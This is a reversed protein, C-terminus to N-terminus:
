LVIVRYLSVLRFSRESFKDWTGQLARIDFESFMSLIVWVNVVMILSSILFTIGLLVTKILGLSLGPMVPYTRLSKLFNIDGIECFRSSM